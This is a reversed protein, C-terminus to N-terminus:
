VIGSDDELLATVQGTGVLSAFKSIHSSQIVDFSQQSFTKLAVRPVLMRRM